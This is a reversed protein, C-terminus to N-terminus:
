IIVVEKFGVELAKKKLVEMCEVSPTQYHRYCERVGFPRFAILKYRIEEINVTKKLLESIEIIVQNADFLEEIVVTRIEELKGIRALYSTNELVIRNEYGTVRLADDLNFAKIDLMIGDTVEILDEYKQFLITGNSDILTSLGEKKCCVFFETLFEPYLMCEGGSVTVGSIFPIHKKLRGFVERATLWEVKPSAHYRCRQICADCQICKNRDYKIGSPYQEVREVEMLAGVPCVQICEMCGTCQGRTEPNHCYKCDINCGQLFIATRNGPGDVASFSIIKNVPVRRGQKERWLIDM